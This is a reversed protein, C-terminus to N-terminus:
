GHVAPANLAVDAILPFDEPHHISALALDIDLEPWYLHHPQPREVNFIAEVSATRFWPFASFPMFLEEDDLLLWFGNRTVGSVEVPSIASGPM